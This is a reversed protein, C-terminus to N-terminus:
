YGRGVSSTIIFSVFFLCIIIISLINSLKSYDKKFCLISLVINIIILLMSVYFLVMFDIAKINEYMSHYFYVEKIEGTNSDPLHGVGKFIKIFWLPIQIISVIIKSLNYTLKSM